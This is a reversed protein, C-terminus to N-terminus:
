QWISVLPSVMNTHAPLNRYPERIVQDLEDVLGHARADGVTPSRDDRPRELAFTTADSRHAIGLDESACAIIRLESPQSLV